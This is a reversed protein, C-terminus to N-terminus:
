STLECHTTYYGTVQVYARFNTTGSSGELKAQVASSVGSEIPFVMNESNYSLASQAYTIYYLKNTDTVSGQADLLDVVVYSDGSQGLHGTRVFTFVVM